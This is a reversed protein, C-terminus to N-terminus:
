AALRVKRPPPVPVPISSRPHSYSDMDLDSGLSPLSELELSERSQSNLRQVQDELRLPMTAIRHPPPPPPPCRPRQLSAYVGSQRNQHSSSSSSSSTNNGHHQHPPHSISAYSPHHPSVKPLMISGNTKIKTPVLPRKMSNNNAHMRESSGNQEQFQLYTHHPSTRPSTITTITTKTPSTLNGTTTATTATVPVTTTTDSSRHRWHGSGGRKIQAYVPGPLPDSPTRIHAFSSSVTVPASPRHDLLAPPPPPPLPPQDQSLFTSTKMKFSRRHHNGHLACDPDHTTITSIIHSLDRNLLHNLSSSSRGSESGEEM